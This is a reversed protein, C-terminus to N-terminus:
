FLYVLLAILIIMALLMMGLLKFTEKLSYAETPTGAPTFEEIKIREQPVGCKELHNRVARQYDHGGCIFFDAQPYAQVIGAVEDKELRGIESTARLKVQVKTQGQEWNQLESTYIFQSPITVSYDLYFNRSPYGSKLARIMALAPTVGIGAALFVVPTATDEPLYFNGQPNSIRVLLDGSLQEHLWGSFIGRPERKVTIEYFEKEDPSSSLTYARQIWHRKIRGQILIHQGPFFSHIKGSRPRLKFSKIGAAPELIELCEVQELDARGVMEALQPTCSGCIMSAGTEMALTELTDCGQSIAYKLVGRTVGTCKCVVANDAYGASEQSLWLEGTQKFIALQWPYFRHSQLVQSHLHGLNPWEGRAIIGIVRGNYIELERFIDNNKYTIRSTPEKTTGVLSMNFIPKGVVKTFAVQAGSAFHYMATICEMGMLKGTHLTLLGRGPLHYIGKLTEMYEQLEPSSHYRAMFKEGSLTLTQLDELVKVTSERVKKEILAREGFCHNPGLQRLVKTEDKEWRSIEVTGSLIFYFYDAEDGENYIIAGAKFNKEELWQGSDNDLALSRFLASQQTLKQRLQEEGIKKLKKAVQTDRELAMLFTHRTIELLKVLGQTRVSANRKGSGQPLLAQEGFFSGKELRALAIEHGHEDVTFVQVVGELIIFMSNSTDGEAIIQQGARYSNIVSSTAIIKIENEKLSQFIPNKQLIDQIDM